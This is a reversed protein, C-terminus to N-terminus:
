GICLKRIQKRFPNVDLAIGKEILGGVDFSHRYLFSLIKDYDVKYVGNKYLPIVRFEGKSIEIQLLYSGYEASLIQVNGIEETLTTIDKPCIDERDFVLCFLRKLPNFSHGYERYRNVPLSLIPNLLICVQESNVWTRIGGSRVLFRIDRTPNLDVGLWTCIHTKFLEGEGFDCKLLPRYPLYANIKAYDLADMM